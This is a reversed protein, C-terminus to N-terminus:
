SFSFLDVHLFPWINSIVARLSENYTMKPLFEEERWRQSRVHDLRQDGIQHTELSNM